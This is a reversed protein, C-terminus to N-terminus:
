KTNTYDWKSGWNNSGKIRAFNCLLEGNRNTEEHLM